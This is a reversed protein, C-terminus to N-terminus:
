LSFIFEPADERHGAISRYVYLQEICENISNIDEVQDRQQIEVNLGQMKAALEKCGNHTVLCSSMWLSRMSEYRCSGSLLARDGFPCDRIELKRLKTCGSLLYQMGNDSDGVFALSIMELNKGYRGILEFAKDTLWGSVSLRRLNKCHQVIAGFGEDFPKRTVYDPMKPVIICLRFRTLFPCNQAVKETVTGFGDPDLPFVRIEKLDKCTSAVVELGKDQINDLVWLHQLKHCHSLLDILHEPNHIMAYSLNLYTLNVCIPYLSQLYAPAIEWFGSLSTLGKCNKVTSQLRCLDEAHPKQRNTGTGLDVLQSAGVLLRPLLELPVLRNLKLSKLNPSRAVLRELADFNVESNICAFNLSVLSTCSDPFRALWHGGRDDIDCEQLDLETINRCNAAISALGHTSFGECSTLVLVRFNCFYRSLLHLTDDSVVMRKLRLEELCPYAEAFALIWRRIDAGWDPPLLNFDAFHPKGKIAVAKLRPFRKVITEPSVAYCNGIFVSSRCGGEIRYWSKCVLSVSNRDKHSGLFALVHELVEEPFYSERQHIVMM